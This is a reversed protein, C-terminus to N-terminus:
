RQPEAHIAGNCADSPGAETTASSEATGTRRFADTSGGSSPAAQLGCYYSGTDPPSRDDSYHLAAARSPSRQGPLRRESPPSSPQELREAIEVVTWRGRPDRRLCHRAIDLFPTPMGEPVKPEAQKTKEWILPHQTLAEVLVM